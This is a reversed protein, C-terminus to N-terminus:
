YITTLFSAGSKNSGLLSKGLNWCGNKLLITTRKPLDQLFQIDGQSLKRRKKYNDIALVSPCPEVCAQALAVTRQVNIMETLARLVVSREKCTPVCPPVQQKNALHKVRGVGGTSVQLWSVYERGAGADVYAWGSQSGPFSKNPPPKTQGCLTFRFIGAWRFHKSGPSTWAVKALHKTRPLGVTPKECKVFLRMLGDPFWKSDSHVVGTTTPMASRRHLKPTFLFCAFKFNPLV